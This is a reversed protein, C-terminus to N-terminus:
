GIVGVFKYFIRVVQTREGNVTKPESVEIKEILRNLLESSLEKIQTCEAFGDASAEVAHIDASANELKKELEAIEALLENQDEEIRASLLRFKSESVIGQTRDDYLKIYRRDAEENKTKLEPIQQKAQEQAGRGTNGMKEMVSAVFRERDSIVKEAHSRIDNM